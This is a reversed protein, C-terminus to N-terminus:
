VVYGDRLLLEEPDGTGGFLDGIYFGDIHMGHSGGAHIVAMARAATRQLESAAEPRAAPDFPGLPHLLRVEDETPRQAEDRRSRNRPSPLLLKKLFFITQQRQTM